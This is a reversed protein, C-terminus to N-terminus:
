WPTRLSHCFVLANVENLVLFRRCVRFRDTEIPLAGTRCGPGDCEADGFLFSSIDELFWLLVRGDLRLSFAQSGKNRTWVKM